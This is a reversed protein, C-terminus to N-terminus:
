KNKKSEKLLNLLESQFKERSEAMKFLIEAQTKQQELSEQAIEVLESKHDPKAREASPGASASLGESCNSAELDDPDM